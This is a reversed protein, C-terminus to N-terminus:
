TSQLPPVDLLHGLFLLSGTRNSRIAFLFPRDLTLQAPPATVRGAARMVLATAAAAETGTEDVRVFAKHCVDGISLPETRVIGTFDARTPDFATSMGLGALTGAMLFSSTLEFRPMGLDVQHTRFRADLRDVFRPGLQRQIAGFRGSEPAIVVMSAGGAYPLRVAEYGEDKTYGALLQRHMMPVSQARGELPQFPQPVTLAPDFEHLWRAKFYVANVVVLRTLENILGEPILERIKDQTQLEVWQNIAQRAPEVAAIYDALHVAAGYHRALVELFTQEFGYGAQAWLSNAVHLRLSGDDGSAGALDHDLGNRAAHLRDGVFPLRLVGAMEAATDGRAGEYIMTLAAAVSYPSFFVNSPTRAVLSRYLEFAFAADAGVIAGVDEAPVLGAAERGVDAGVLDTDVSPNQSICSRSIGPHPLEPGVSAWRRVLRCASRRSQCPVDPRGTDGSRASLDVDPLAGLAPRPCM